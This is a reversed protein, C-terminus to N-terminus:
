QKIKTKWDRRQFHPADKFKWNGGWEIDPNVDKMIDALHKFHEDRWDLKEDKGLFAIDFAMAPKYKHPSQGAKANTVKAGPKTRGQAYLENQESNARYTCTILVKNGLYALEYRRKAETFAAALTPDLDELKRSAM